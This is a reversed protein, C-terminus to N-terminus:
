PVPGLFRWASWHRISRRNGEPRWGASMLRAAVLRRFSGHTVALVSGQEEALSALWDAAEAARELSERTARDGRVTGMLSDLGIALAWAGLPMRWGIWRPVRLDTERILPSVVVSRAGAVLREASAIARPVDSAVVVGVRGAEAVLGPPPVDEAHIGALDYASLWRHLGAADIWGDRHLHASRGHRVLLIRRTNLAM